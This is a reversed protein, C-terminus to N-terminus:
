NEVKESGTKNIKQRKTSEKSNEIRKKNKKEVAELSVKIASKVDENFYIADLEKLKDERREGSILQILLDDFSQGLKSDYIAYFADKDIKNLIFDEHGFNFVCTLFKKLDFYEGCYTNFISYISYISPNVLACIQFIKFIRKQDCVKALFDKIVFKVTQAIHEFQNLYLIRILNDIKITSSNKILLELCKALNTIYKQEEISLMGKGFMKGLERDLREIEADDNLSVLSVSSLSSAEESELPLIGEEIVVEAAEEAIEEEVVVEAVEEADGDVKYDEVNEYSDIEYFFGIFDTFPLNASKECVKAIENFIEEFFENYQDADFTASFIFDVLYRSLLSDIYILGFLNKLTSDKLEYFACIHKLVAIQICDGETEVNKDTTLIKIKALVEAPNSKFKKLIFLLMNTVKDKSNANKAELLYTNINEPTYFLKSSNESQKKMPRPKKEKEFRKKFVKVKKEKVPVETTAVAEAEKPQETSKDKKDKKSKSNKNLEERMERKTPGREPKDRGQDKFTTSKKDFKLNEKSKIREDRSSGKSFSKTFEKKAFKSDTPKISDKKVFKSDASKTYEKKAPKTSESAKSEVPKTSDSAKSEAKKTEVPKSDTAKKTEVPKSEVLKSDTPKKVPKEKMTEKKVPKSKSYVKNSDAVAKMEDRNTKIVRKRTEKKVENPNFAPIEVQNELKVEKKYSEREKRPEKIDKSSKERRIVAM